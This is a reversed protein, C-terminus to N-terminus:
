FQGINLKNAIEETIMKTKLNKLQIVIKAEKDKTKFMKRQLAKEYKLFEQPDINGEKDLIKKGYIRLAELVNAFQLKVQRIARNKALGDQTKKGDKHEIKFGGGFDEEIGNVAVRCFGLIVDGEEWIYVLNKKLM